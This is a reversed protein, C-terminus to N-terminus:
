GSSWSLSRGYLGSCGCIFYSVTTGSWKSPIRGSHYIKVIIYLRSTGNQGSVRSNEFQNHLFRIVSVRQMREVIRPCALRM